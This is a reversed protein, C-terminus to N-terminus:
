DEELLGEGVRYCFYRYVKPLLETFVTDWDVPQTATTLREILRSQTIM